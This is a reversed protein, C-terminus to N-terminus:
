NHPVSLIRPHHKLGQVSCVPLGWSQKNGKWFCLKGQHPVSSKLSGTNGWPPHRSPMMAWSPERFLLGKTISTRTTPQILNEPVQYLIQKHQISPLEIPYMPPTLLPGQAVKDMTQAHCPM